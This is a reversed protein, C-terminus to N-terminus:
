GGYDAKKGKANFTYELMCLACDETVASMNKNFRENIQNNVGSTKLTKESFTYVDFEEKQNRLKSPFHNVFCINIIYCVSFIAPM